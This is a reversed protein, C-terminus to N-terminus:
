LIMCFGHLGLLMAISKKHYIQAHRAVYTSFLLILLGNTFFCLYNFLWARDLGQTGLESIMQTSIEYTPTCYALGFSAIIFLSPGVIGSYILLHRM